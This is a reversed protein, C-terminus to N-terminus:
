SVWRLPVRSQIGTPLEWVARDLDVAVREAPLDPGWLCVADGTMAGPAPRLDIAMQDMSIRGIVPCEAGHVLVVSNEGRGRRPYGDGYGIACVGVPMDCASIYVAGYGVSSGARVEQVSSLSTQLTMVPRFGEQYAIKEEVPHLGYLLLGPRVVDFCAEPFHLIGASSLLSKLEEKGDVFASFREIQLQNLPHEPEDSCALHSMLGHLHVKKNKKLLEYHSQADEMSFGLRNMGTNIKMWCSLPFSIDKLWQLHVPHHVVVHIGLSAAWNMACSSLVGQILVIKQAQFGANVLCLAEQVRAVGFYAVYPDLVACSGLLGHGYANAKVMAMVRAPRVKEQLLHANHCLAQKSLVANLSEEHLM